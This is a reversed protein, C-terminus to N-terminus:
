QNVNHNLVTANGMLQEFLYRTQEESGDNVVIVGGIDRRRLEEVLRILTSDPNYAPIIAIDM